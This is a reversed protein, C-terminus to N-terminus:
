FRMCFDNGYLMYVQGSSRGCRGNALDWGFTTGVPIKRFFREASKMWFRTACFCFNVIKKNVNLIKHLLYFHVKLLYRINRGSWGPWAIKHNKSSKPIPLVFRGGSHEFLFFAHLSIGYNVGSGPDAASRRRVTRLFESHAHLSILYNIIKHNQWPHCYITYAFIPCM